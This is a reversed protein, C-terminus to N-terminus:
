RSPSLPLSFRSPSNRHYPSPSERFLGRPTAPSHNQQRLRSPLSISSLRAWNLGRGFQSVHRPHSRKPSAKLFKSLDDPIRSEDTRNLRLTRQLKALLPEHAPHKRFNWSLTLTLKHSGESINWKLYERYAELHRLFTLVQRPLGYTAM